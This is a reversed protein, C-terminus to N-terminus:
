EESKNIAEDLEEYLGDKNKILKKGQFEFMKKVVM